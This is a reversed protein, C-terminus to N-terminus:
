RTSVTTVSAATTGNALDQERNPSDLSFWLWRQVLRCDDFPYGIARDAAALLYDFTREMFTCVREDGGPEGLADFWASPMLVGYESIILPKERQGRAAMWRRSDQVFAAFLDFSDNEWWPILVGRLHQRSHLRSSATSGTWAGDM